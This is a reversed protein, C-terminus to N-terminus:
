KYIYIYVLIDKVVELYALMAATKSPLTLLYGCAPKANNKKANKGKPWHHNEGGKAAWKGKSPNRNMTNEEHDELLHDSYTRRGKDPRHHHQMARRSETITGPNSRVTIDCKPPPPEM